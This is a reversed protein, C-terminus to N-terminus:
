RSRVPSGPQPSAPPLSGPSAVVGGQDRDVDSAVPDVIADTASMRIAAIGFGMVSWFWIGGVPGGIYVDFSGDILAALWYVFVWGLVAVWAPATRYARFAARLISLAFAGQLIIWLILGPVGARALIEMHVSHPARLSRDALVQFGDDDALNIGFGKGTWFHPGDVTYDVITNWWRLRWDKTAQNVTTDQETFLSTINDVVQGVSIKRPLGVDVQPDAAIVLVALLAGAFGLALWRSSQRVFLPVAAIAAIAILAARNLAAVIAADILGLMGLALERPGSTPGTRAYLGLLIFAAIAALHVSTDGAKFTLIPISSGPPTPLSESFGLTLIAAIPIWALYAPLIRRYVRAAVAIHAPRLTISVAVAFVAYSWTVSDRLANIGDSAVFPLTRAAGWLMFAVILGHLPGFRASSLSVLIAVIALALVMEGVYLPPMGLYAFGKGLFAYGILLFALGVQFVTIAGRGLRLLLLGAVAAVLAVAGVPLVAALIGIAVGALGTAIVWPRRAPWRGPRDFVPIRSQNTAPRRSRTSPSRRDRGARPAIRRRSGVRPRGDRDAFRTVRGSSRPLSRRRHSCHRLSPEPAVRDGIGSVAWRISHVVRESPVRM